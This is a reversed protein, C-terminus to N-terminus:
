SNNDPKGKLKELLNEKCAKSDDWCVEVHQPICGLISERLELELDNEWILLNLLLKQHRVSKELCKICEFTLKEASSKTLIILTKDCEQVLHCKSKIITKGAKFDRYSKCVIGNNNLFEIVIDGKEQDEDEFVVFVTM